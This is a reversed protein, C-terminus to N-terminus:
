SYVSSIINISQRMEQIRINCRDFCDGNVGIPIYMQIFEMYEIKVYIGFLAQVMYCVGGGEGGILQM